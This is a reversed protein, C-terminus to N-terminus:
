SYSALYSLRILEIKFKQPFGHTGPFYFDYVLFSGLFPKIFFDLSTQM